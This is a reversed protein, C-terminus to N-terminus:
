NISPKDDPALLIALIRAERRLWPIGIGPPRGTSYASRPKRSAKATLFCWPPMMSETMGLHRWLRGEEGVLDFRTARVPGFRLNRLDDTTLFSLCLRGRLWRALLRCRSALSQDENSDMRCSVASRLFRGNGSHLWPTAARGESPRHAGPRGRPTGGPVHAESPFGGVGSGERDVV